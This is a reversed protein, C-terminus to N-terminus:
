RPKTTTVILAKTEGEVPGEGFRTFMVQEVAKTAEGLRSPDVMEIASRILSGQVTIVAADRASAARVTRAIRDVKVDRFGAAALHARITPENFYAPNVLTHPDRRLMDGVTQAAIWAPSDSMNAYDDWLVFLFTGGPTLVRFSEHFSARKDPFFMVGFQCVILDFAGDPFPLKMADALQWHVREMGPRLKGREIMAENLDTATITVDTPLIRALAETVVGTGAATELVRRPLLAKARDAVAEAYPAFNLPVLYRDYFEALTGGFAAVKDSTM